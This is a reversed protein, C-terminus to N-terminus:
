LEGTEDKIIAEAILPDDPLFGDVDIELMLEFTERDEDISDSIIPVQFRVLTEGPAFTVNIPTDDFDLGGIASVPTSITPIVIVTYPFSAPVSARLSGMVAGDVEYGVFSEQGFTIRGAVYFMHIIIYFLKSIKLLLYMLVYTLIGSISIYTHGTRRFLPRTAKGFKWIKRTM